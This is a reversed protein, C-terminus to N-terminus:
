PHGRAVDDEFDARRRDEHVDIRHRAVEVKREDFRRDCGRGAGDNGHIEGTQRHIAVPEVRNRLLVVQANDLVGSLREAAHPFAATNAREAVENRKTKM